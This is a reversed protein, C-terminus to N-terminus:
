EQCRKEVEKKKLEAGLDFWKPYGGMKRECVMNKKIRDETEKATRLIEDHEELSMTITKSM